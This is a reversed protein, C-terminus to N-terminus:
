KKNQEKFAKLGNELFQIYKSVDENFAYSPGLPKGEDNLLIYFPQANAGFKSRQLYSWKDGITKLKRVKGHEEIEIPKPLKTKDDVMLTILVYDKELLQKVKPDTWVSAEMKRCNVCGFGSFDIMVPKNVRKAYAMGSEYDDFPAHVEDNYLSFDQTYLPPAFASISKLPAGWLGPIMYVAFGFSIIAMFLRPVSVYKVDSDHSFKIKGLLYLGLLFFIVIWLVIFVERDLLRWGYALDAVSLFKLALALELFGLVVKVSNLWGGSKPMSQLMNPFIAFLSFPISLALAFGFMGIAPGVATGMSAAQVLLTGIIPGTCSFSVLVLTFSMFFISLIGTTSDAKSDLKTTWSAPLVMEFAGFFSIAFVVLLLFFIINFIANTSLDNLASAGFIGTILLGMVLYIVIISLGYTVADRIAKKRDKTRKLFFSVTMPIMPWVCPTLLAILGGLFGAFFIFLWSTDTATVTTDGYAKLDDIVPTWLAADDTLANAIKEPNAIVVEEKAVPDPTTLTKGEEIVLNTDPLEKTVDDKEVVPADAPLTLKTNKSDFAFSVRDPPLCTEDNCVMFEVEGEIKFKKPDLIKVKQTFTVAGPFWRLDMAFQEDYVVTPKINSVPQGILEAGQLTEFTFSTSVPGGEPLNMDYLHWGKEITAAFVIEKEASKSDELKIKWKVPQHIQAQVALTVFVLLLISFLKKM